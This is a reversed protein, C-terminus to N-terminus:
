GDFVDPLSQNFVFAPAPEVDTPDFAPTQELLFDGRRRVV